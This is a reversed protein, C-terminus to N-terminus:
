HKPHRLIKLGVIGEAWYVSADDIALLKTDDTETVKDPAGGAIPIRVIADRDMVFLDIADVAIGSIRTKGSIVKTAAGGAKPVSMVDNGSAFYVNAGSVRLQGDDFSPKEGRALVTPTGGAKPVRCAQGSDDIYFIDSGDLVLQNPEAATMAIQVPAGGGAPIKFIRSTRTSVYVGSADVAVQFPVPVSALVSAAGGAKAATMVTGDGENAWYVTTADADIGRPHSQAPAFVESKGGSKAVRKIQGNASRDGTMGAGWVTWYVHADDVLLQAPSEETALTEPEKGTPTYSAGGSGCRCRCGPWAATCFILGALWLSKKM